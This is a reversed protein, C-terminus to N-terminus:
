DQGGGEREEELKLTAHPNRANYIERGRLYYDDENIERKSIADVLKIAPPPGQLSVPQFLMLVFHEFKEPPDTYEQRGSISGLLRVTREFSSTVRLRTRDQDAAAPLAFFGYIVSYPFRMHLNISETCLDAFRNMLNKGFPEFNISKISVALLLGNQEDSYSVDVKKPGLGGQFAKEGPGGRYPRVGPFGVSRFGEAVEQALNASLRESYRKKIAQPESDLPILGTAM